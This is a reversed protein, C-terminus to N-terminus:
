NDDLPISLANNNTNNLCGNVQKKKKEINIHAHARNKEGAYPTQAHM